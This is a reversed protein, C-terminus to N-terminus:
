VATRMSLSTICAKAREETLVNFVKTSGDSLSFVVRWPARKGRYNKGAANYGYTANTVTPM